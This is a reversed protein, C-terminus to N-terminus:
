NIESYVVSGIHTHLSYGNFLEENELSSLLKKLTPYEKRIYNFQLCTVDALPLLTPLDARYVCLLTLNTVRIM